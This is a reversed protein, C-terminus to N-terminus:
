GLYAYRGTYDGYGHIFQVTGKSEGVAPFRYNQIHVHKDSGGFDKREFQVANVQPWNFNNFNISKRQFEAQEPSLPQGDEGVINKQTLAGTGDGREFNRILIQSARKNKNSRV